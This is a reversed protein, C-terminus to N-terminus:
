GFFCGNPDEVVENLLADLNKHEALPDYSHWKLDQRMWYLKWAKKSKVYTLKAVPTDLIQNKDQWHPRVEYLFLSQGELRYDFDVQDRVSEPPRQAM